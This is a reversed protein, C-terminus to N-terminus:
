WLACYEDGANRGGMHLDSGAVYDKVHSIYDKLLQARCGADTGVPFPLTPVSSNRLFEYIGPDTKGPKVQGFFDVYNNSHQSGYPDYALRVDCGRRKAAALVKAIRWGTDDSQFAFVNIWVPLGGPQAKDISALLRPLAGQPNVVKMPLPKGDLLPVERLRKAVNQARSDEPDCGKVVDQLSPRYTGPPFDPVM